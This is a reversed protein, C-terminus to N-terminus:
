ANTCSLRCAAASPDSMHSSWQGCTHCLAEARLLEETQFIQYILYLREMLSQHCCRREAFPRCSNIRDVIHM